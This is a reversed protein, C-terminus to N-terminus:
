GKSSKEPSQDEGEDDRLKQIQDSIAKLLAENDGIMEESFEM